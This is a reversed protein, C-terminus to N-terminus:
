AHYAKKRAARQRLAREQAAAARLLVLIAKREAELAALRERLAGPTLGSLLDALSTATEM